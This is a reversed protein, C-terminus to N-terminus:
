NNNATMYHNSKNKDDRDRESLSSAFYCGYPPAISTVIIMIKM